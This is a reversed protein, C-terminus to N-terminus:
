DRQKAGEWLLEIYGIKKPRTNVKKVDETTGLGWNTVMKKLEAESFTSFMERFKAHDNRKAVVVPDVVLAADNGQFVVPIRIADLLRKAFKPNAIAEERIVTFLNNLAEEPTLSEESM